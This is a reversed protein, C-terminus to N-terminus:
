QLNKITEYTRPWIQLKNLCIDRAPKIADYNVPQKIIELVDEGNGNIDIYHFSDAPIFYEANTCGWYLPMTWMLLADFVRESLYNRCPGVDIEVSYRAGYLIEEKGFWYTDRTNTGLEQGGDIRGYLPIGKSKLIKAFRKRRDRGYSGGANSMITVCDTTKEMPPMNSLYDYDYSLWWEGFGFQRKNDISYLGEGTNYGSYGEMYPHASMYITRDKPVPHTTNDIVVVYDAKNMDTIATMEQWAGSRNPTMKRIIELFKENTEPEYHFCVTFPKSM